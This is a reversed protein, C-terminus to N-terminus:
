RRLGARVPDMADVISKLDDLDAFLEVVDDDALLAREMSTILSADRATALRRALSTILADQRGPRVEVLERRVLEDVVTRSFQVLLPSSM